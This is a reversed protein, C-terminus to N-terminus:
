DNLCQRNGQRRDIQQVIIKAVETANLGDTDISIDAREYFPLRRRWLEEVETLERGSDALPRGQSAALRLRLTTWTARLYVVPGLRRIVAWNEERGIIGGGTAIVTRHVGVLSRLASAEYDRFGEEGETAFIEPISQGAQQVILTDLDVLRFDSLRELERGVTSKGAGMFGILVINDGESRRSM